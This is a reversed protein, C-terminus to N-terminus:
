ARKLIKCLLYTGTKTFGGASLTARTVLPAALCAALGVGVGVITAHIKAKGGPNNGVAASGADENGGAM